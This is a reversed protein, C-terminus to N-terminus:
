FPTSKNPDFDPARVSSATNMEKTTTYIFDGTPDGDGNAENGAAYFTIPDIADAPPKWKVTWKKKKNGAVTHEIYKGKDEKELERFDNPRIVQTNKDIKKFKGVRTDNADLATMEFGHLTGSSEAFSIELNIFKGPVYTDPGVISFLSNGSNLEFSNHCDIDNCTGKDNPAGTRYAPPGGSWAFLADTYLGYLVIFLALCPVFKKIISM